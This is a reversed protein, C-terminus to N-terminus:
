AKTFGASGGANHTQVNYRLWASQYYFAFFVTVILSILGSVLPGVFPLGNEMYSGVAALNMCVAQGIAVIFMVKAVRAVTDATDSKWWQFSVLALYLGLVAALVTFM